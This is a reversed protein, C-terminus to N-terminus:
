KQRRPLSHNRNAASHKEIGYGGASTKLGGATRWRSQASQFSKLPSLTLLQSSFTASPSIEGSWMGHLNEVNNTDVKHMKAVDVKLM